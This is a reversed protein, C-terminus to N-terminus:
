EGMLCNNLVQSTGPWETQDVPVLAKKKSRDCTTTFTLHLSIQMNGFGSSESITLIACQEADQCAFISVQNLSPQDEPVMGKVITILSTISLHGLCPWASTTEPTTIHVNPFLHDWKEPTTFSLLFFDPAASVMNERCPSFQLTCYTPPLPGKRQEETAM